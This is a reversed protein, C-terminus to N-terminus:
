LIMNLNDDNFRTRKSIGFRMFNTNEPMGSETNKRRNMLMTLLEGANPKWIPEDTFM